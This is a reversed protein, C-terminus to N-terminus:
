SSKTLSDSPLAFPCTKSCFLQIAKNTQNPDWSNSLILLMPVYGRFQFLILRISSFLILRISSFANFSSTKHPSTFNIFKNVSSSNSFVYPLIFIPHSSLLSNPLFVIEITLLYFDTFDTFTPNEKLCCQM